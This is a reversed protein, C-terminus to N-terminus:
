TTSDNETLYPFITQYTKSDQIPPSCIVHIGKNKENIYIYSDKVYIKGTDKLEQPSESRVSARLEEYSMYVPEYITITETTECGIALCLAFFLFFLHRKIRM